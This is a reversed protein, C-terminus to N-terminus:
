DGNLRIPFLNLGYIFDVGTAQFNGFVGFGCKMTALGMTISLMHPM